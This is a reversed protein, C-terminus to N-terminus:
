NQSFAKVLAIAAPGVAVLFFSPFMCLVLPFLIKTGVKAALEEAKQMRRDRFDDAYIRLTEAIGTGFRLSQSLMSVFGSIDPIDTRASLGRLAQVRDAGALMEANVLEIEEALEPYSLELERAVRQLAANLGLGAESCAVLMDLMDPFANVIRRKREAVRKDLVYSPLLSGLFLAGGSYMLMQLGSLQPFFTTAFLAGLGLLLSLGLKWAYYVAMAGESRYGASVLRKRIAGIEKASTPLVFSRVPAIANEVRRSSRAGARASSNVEARVRRRVPNSAYGVLFLVSLSFLGIAVGVAAVFVTASDDFYAAFPGFSQMFRDFM